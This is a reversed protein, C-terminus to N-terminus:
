DKTHAPRRETLPHGPCLHCRVPGPTTTSAANGLVLPVGRSRGMMEWCDLVRVPANLVLGNLSEEMNSPQRVCIFRRKAQWPRRQTAAQNKNKEFHLSEQMSKNLLFSNCSSNSTWCALCARVACHLQLPKIEGVPRPSIHPELSPDSPKAQPSEHFCLFVRSISCDGHLSGMEGRTGAPCRQM